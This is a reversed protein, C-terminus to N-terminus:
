KKPMWENKADMKPFDPNRGASSIVLFLHNADLHGCRRWHACGLGGHQRLRRQSGPVIHIEPPLVTTFHPYCQHFGHYFWPLVWPSVGKQDKKCIIVSYLQSGEAPKKRNYIKAAQQHGFQTGWVWGAQTAVIYGHDDLRLHYPSPDFGQYRTFGLIAQLHINM